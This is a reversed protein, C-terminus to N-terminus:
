RPVNAPQRAATPEAETANTAPADTPRPLQRRQRLLHEYHPPLPGTQSSQCGFKASTFYSLVGILGIGSSILIITLM